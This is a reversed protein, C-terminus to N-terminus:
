SRVVQTGQSGDLLLKVEPSNAVNKALTDAAHLTSKVEAESFNIGMKSLALKLVTEVKVKVDPKLGEYAGGAQRLIAQAQMIAKDHEVEDILHQVEIKGKAVFPAMVPSEALHEIFKVGDEVAVVASQPLKEAIDTAVSQHNELYKVVPKIFQFKKELAALALAYVAIAEKSVLLQTITM